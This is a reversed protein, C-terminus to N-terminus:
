AAFNCKETKQEWAHGNQAHLAGRACTFRLDNKPPTGLMQVCARWAMGDVGRGEASHNEM